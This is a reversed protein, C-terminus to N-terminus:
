KPSSYQVRIYAERQGASPGFQSKKVFELASDALSADAAASLEEEIVHGQADIMAHVIVPKEVGSIPAPALPFRMNMMNRVSPNMGPQPNIATADAEAVDTIETVHADLVGAGAVYMSIQDPLARGHFQLNKSYGYVAFTGPARSFIQLLGSENDVCFETEGWHRGPGDFTSGSALVCTAPRNNWSVSASRIMNGSTSTGVPWFMASRLMEVRMPVSGSLQAFMRGGLGIRTESYEGLRQDYRWKAGSLWLEDMEGSGIYASNGGAQFSIKLQFPPAGPMHLDANQRARELLSLVTARDAPTKPTTVTGTVLEHPDAPVPAVEYSETQAVGNACLLAATLLLTSIRM